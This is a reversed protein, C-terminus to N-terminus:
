VNPTDGTQSPIPASAFWAKADILNNLSIEDLHWSAPNVAAKARAIADDQSEALVDIFTFATTQVSLLVTYKQM